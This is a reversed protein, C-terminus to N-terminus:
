EIILTDNILTLHVKEFRNLEEVVQQLPMQPNWPYYLRLAATEDSRIAVTIHYVEALKTTIDKLPVNEFTKVSPNETYTTAVYIRSTDPDSITEHGRVETGEQGQAQRITYFAAYAIGSLMLVGIFLAAIQMWGQIKREPTFHKVEFKRWEEDLNVQPEKAYMQRLLEELKDNSEM